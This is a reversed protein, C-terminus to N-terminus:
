TASSLVLFMMLNLNNPNPTPERNPRSGIPARRGVM